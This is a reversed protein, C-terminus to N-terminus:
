LDGAGSADPSDDQESTNAKQYAKESSTWMFYGWAVGGLPFLVLSLLLLTWFSSYGEMFFVSALTFLIATTVGWYLM